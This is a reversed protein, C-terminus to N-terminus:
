TGPRRVMRSLVVAVRRAQLPLTHLNATERVTHGGSGILGVGDIVMDVRGAVFSVDAAGARAPDGAAVPGQGLDRSAQDFLALLRRNGDTPALPPYRDEFAIDAGTEPLHRAAIRRMADETASLQEPTLTRLDGKVMASEAVVNTKGFATGRDQEEEFTVASGGVIAGPNFTLNPQASLSDYFTTLIRAAEYIAGAGVGPRFVQSSHAPRGSTRLMWSSSGRRGVVMVRTDGPGDEFGIAIDAWDAAAQLDRRALPIPTGANEEDGTLVVTIQLQDLVGASQLARLALLMIVDGGKMDTSGPGTATSDDLRQWHQFPSDREFVTDLHGIFLIKPGTGRGFREAILHGARGWAAGDSWRTRFGLKTFEADFVRGVERVGALNMTGSNINVARELVALADPVGADVARVLQQESPTLAQAKLPAAILVLALTALLKKRRATFKWWPKARGGNMYDVAAMFTDLVCPDNRVGRAANLADYLALPDRGTLDAPRHIGILRLDGAISPGINPLDELREWQGNGM